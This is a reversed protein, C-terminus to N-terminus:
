VTTDPLPSSLAAPVCNRVKYLCCIVIVALISWTLHPIVVTNWTGTNAFQHGIGSKRLIAEGPFLFAASAILASRAYVNDLNQFIWVAMLLIVGANYNRQYVPLLAILSLTGAALWYSGNGATDREKYFISLWVIALAGATGVASVNALRVSHFASYLPVQLNVLDFRGTNDAAFDAAGNHGFLMHLNNQYDARWGSPVHSMAIAAGITILASVGLFTSLSKVRRYLLLVLVAAMATTPKVCFGLALLIGATPSDSASALFLAFGCLILVIISPNAEAIGAHIPSIGLAFVIFGLRRLSRISDGV